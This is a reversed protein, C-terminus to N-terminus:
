NSTSTGDMEVLMRDHLFLSNNTTETYCDYGSEIQDYECTKKDSGTDYDMEFKKFINNGSDSIPDKNIVITRWITYYGAYNIYNDGSPISACAM